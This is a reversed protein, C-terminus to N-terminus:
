ANRLETMYDPEASAAAAMSAKARSAVSKPSPVPGVELPTGTASWPITYTELNGNQRKIVVSATKSTLADTAHPIVSQPRITIRAAALRQTSIPNSQVAYKAYDQLLKQVAVGDVSILEDGTTFPYASVPLLTRNLSDILLVGDYMDTTFGLRAVFDSPLSFADHTDNLSAVYAVCVEYFDLDTKTQAVQDLWPKISLADFNFLQKKWDIPAYYTAYLGALHRFDAEKQASTLNQASATSALIILTLVIANKM